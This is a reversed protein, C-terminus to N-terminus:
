HDPSYDHESAGCKLCREGSYNENHSWGGAWGCVPCFEYVEVDGWEWPSAFEPVADSDYSIIEFPDGGVTIYGNASNSKLADIVDEASLYFWESRELRQKSFYGHLSAEVSRDQDEDRTRIEGMLALKDPNGTQMQRLRRKLDKSYGIKIRMPGVGQSGEETLFYVTM